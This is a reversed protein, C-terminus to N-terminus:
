IHADVLVLWTDAPLSAAWRLYEDDWVGPEKDNKSMGFWLVQGRESWEGDLDVFARTPRLSEPMIARVRAVDARSPQGAEETYGFASPETHSRDVDEPHDTKVTWYGGWRGGIVYWDWQSDPNCTSVVNGDEDMEGGYWDSPRCPGGHKAVYLQFETDAAIDAVTYRIYPAVARNEDYRELAASLASELQKADLTGPLAVTVTFHTM